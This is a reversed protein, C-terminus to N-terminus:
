HTGFARGLLATASMALCGWFTIRAAARVLSSGSLYASLMGLAILSLASVVSVIIGVHGDAGAFLALIPLASGAAFAAASALAAQVPRAKSLSTIGLEDRAHSELANHAMLQDAVQRALALDLGRGVYIQALEEREHKPDSALERREVALDARQADAQSFVSVYEGAAMSMGGAILGALGTVLMEHADAGASGVGIVLSATSIIGDNAGLVAARLWVTREAKHTESHHPKYEPM